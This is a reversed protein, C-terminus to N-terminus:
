RKVNENAILRIYALGNEGLNSRYNQRPVIKTSVTTNVYITNQKQEAIFIKPCVHMLKTNNYLAPINM